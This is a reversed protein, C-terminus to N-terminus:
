EPVITSSDSETPVRESETSADDESFYAADQATYYGGGYGYGYGYGYKRDKAYYRYDSYRYSGYGYSDSEEVGNIVIGIVNGGVERLQELSRRGFERTQRSLRVCIITGDVRPAVGCPDTVVLIPPTDIVIHDFKERLVALLQEYDPRTLLEAPDKPRSGCPLVHLTELSTSRIADDIEVDGRLIDVIGRKNNVGTLKHVRPRRLDSEMLLTRKGSQALSVALNVALTSKGDGAAPSTVQIVKMASGISSFCIATRVSRYAEAPRSRPLHMSVITRDMKTNEPVARLRQEKMYPIHGVIPIGFERIIDEPKRFSRDAMEVIYGLVLGLFGGLFGGIGLFQSLKPYVLTGFSADSLIQAKVGGMNVNVETEGLQMVANDFLKQLRAMNQLQNRDEIEFKLLDRAASEASAARGELKLKTSAITQLEHYLSQMYVTLFDPQPKQIEDKQEPSLGSLKNFHDRTLQIQKRLAVLRPHDNGVEQAVMAEEMLLPFLANAITTADTVSDKVTSTIVAHSSQDKTDRGVLLMLAERTGGSKLAKEFSEIQSTLETERLVLTNLATRLSAFDSRHVNSGDSLLPSTQRFEAYKSEAATLEGHFDDRAEELLRKLESLADDYSDKQHEVFEAAVANTVDATDNPNAGQCSIRIVNASLESTSLMKSMRRIADKQTLGQFTALQGLKANEYAPNLIKPSNIVWTADSLNREALLNEIRHDGAHHIVQLTAGSSYSPTQRQFQLYGAGAGVIALVIVFAKRRKIFGWIDLGGDEDSISDANAWVPQQGIDSM